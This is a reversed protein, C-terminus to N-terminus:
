AAEATKEGRKVLMLLIPSAVFVSSYTGVLVGIVLCFAFAHIGQGGFLYLLVVVILTTISTLLTRSLTQNISTNIMEGTLRPAKGKTERIRDFVVITDNLSYGIITLLAAVVTLSIKFPDILLFGLADAVYYSIAIAGLTILVDHVLAAVAAFGYIVRQFRFWIYLIIVMLSAFLAVSARGVMQGAVRAGVSSSSVWVPENGLSREVAQMVQDAAQNGMPLTVKWESFPVSSGSKWDEAGEGSPLLDIARENLPIKLEDAAEKMRQILTPGSISASTDDGGIGLSIRRVASEGATLSPESTSAPSDSDEATADEATADEAAAETEAQMAVLMVGNSDRDIASTDSGGTADSISVDYTVLDTDAATAFSEVIRTQLDDVSVLSSDVKFVTGDDAGDMTVGNVTFQVPTGDQEGIGTGVIDRISQTTTSQSVRFQVSSGGAFDIDLITKGRAVLSGIGILILVSSIALAIKGKGIFDMMGGGSVSNKMANVMDSMGLSVKNHREAIDFLTRSMYIATFMSYLIGLILTVAFGRIQDTGIAYLVIATFLTTLNADVITVTAKAFGNRIAMRDKAGKNIEERIREFILVNADVSMGVTLVLGALGPLTLPQHILVMTALIMALNLVLAFCAIAGAFRYYFLIFVLVLMLSVGIAMVGKRITDAGLTADIQNKAIPQKTLAAPLQGAKLIDVLAKVEETTFNGTIRGQKSIPQLINPASLLRDDMVIGLQRQRTGQPSNETTLVRFKNSGSDTLNFAVAPAGQEDFTTSAFALDEGKVDIQPDIIMLVELGSLGNNDVWNAQLVQDGRVQTPLEVFEGTDPNRVIANGINVRFPGNDGTKTTERDVIAWRGVTSGDVDSIVESMRIAREPSAAQEAALNIVRQHDTRNAVIAFRLIGAQKLTEEILAVERQDVEPIIIEIQSDGYPRIVIERTGSPNIRKTLPGVLDKSKVGNGQQEADPNSKSPDIEYVLITGGRLDVGQDPLRNLLVTVSVTIALLIFGIRTAHTPMKLRKAFFGGVTFPLIIVALAVALLGYQQWSIGQEAEGQAIPSASLLDGFWGAISASDITSLLGPLLSPATLSVDALPQVLSFCDM